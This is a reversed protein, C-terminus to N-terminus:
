PRTPSGGDTTPAVGADARPLGADSGPRAADGPATGGDSPARVGGDAPARTVGGDAALPAIDPATMPNAAVPGNVDSTTDGGGPQTKPQAPVGSTSGTIPGSSVERVGAADPAPASPDAPAPATSEGLARSPVTDVHTSRRACAVVIAACALATVLIMRLQPATM